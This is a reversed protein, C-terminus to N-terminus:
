GNAHEGEPRGQEETAELGEAKSIAARMIEVPWLCGEDGILAKAELTELLEICRKCADLLDPAAVILRADAPKATYCVSLVHAELDSFRTLWAECKLNIAGFADGSMRCLTAMSQDESYWVWPGPTHKAAKQEDM